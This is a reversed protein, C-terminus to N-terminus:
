PKEEIEGIPDNEALIQGDLSCYQIVVRKPDETTGKGRTIVAEIVLM